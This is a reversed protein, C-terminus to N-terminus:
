SAQGLAPQLGLYMQNEPHRHQRGAAAPLSYFATAAPLAANDGAAAVGFVEVAFVVDALAVRAAKGGPSVSKAFRGLAQCIRSRWVLLEWTAVASHSTDEKCLVGCQGPYEVKDPVDAAAVTQSASRWEKETGRRSARPPSDVFLSHGAREFFSQLVSAPMPESHKEQGGIDGLLLSDSGARLGLASGNLNIFACGRKVEAASADGVVSEGLAVQAAVEDRHRRAARATDKSQRAQEEWAAKEEPGLRHFAQRCQAWSSDSCAQVKHGM